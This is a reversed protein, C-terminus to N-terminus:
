CRSGSLLGTVMDTLVKVEVPKSTAAHLGETLLKAVEPSSYAGTILLFKATVEPQEKAKRFLKPGDMIPMDKDLIVLDIEPHERLMELGEEGNCAELVRGIGMTKLVSSYLFRLEDDDDVILVTCTGLFSEVGLSAQRGM